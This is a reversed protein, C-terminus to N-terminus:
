SSARRQTPSRKKPRAEKATDAFPLLPSAAMSRKAQQPQSAVRMDASAKTASVSLTYCAHARGKGRAALTAGKVVHIERVSPKLSGDLYQLVTESSVGLLIALEESSLESIAALESFTRM